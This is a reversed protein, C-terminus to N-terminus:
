GAMAKVVHPLLKFLDGIDSWLRGFIAAFDNGLWIIMMVAIGLCIAEGIAKMVSASRDLAAAFGEKRAFLFFVFALPLAIIWGFLLLFAALLMARFIAGLFSNPECHVNM